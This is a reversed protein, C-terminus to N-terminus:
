SPGSIDLQVAGTTDVAIIQNYHEVTIDTFKAHDEVYVAFPIGAQTNSTFRKVHTPDDRLLGSEAYFLFVSAGTFPSKASNSSQYVEESVRGGGMLNLARAIEDASRAANAFGGATAKAEYADQWLDYAEGGFLLKNPRLGSENQAARAQARLDAKPEASSHWTAPIAAGSATSLAALAARLDIRLLRRRLAAVYREFSSAGTANSQTYLDDDHDVRITLGKNLTKSQVKKGTYQVRKFNAGIARTVERESEAVFAESNLAKRFEFLRGAPVVPAIWELLEEYGYPDRWGVSYATLPESLTGAAFRSDNAAYVQGTLNNPGQDPRVPGHLIQHLATQPRASPSLSPSRRRSISRPPSSSHPM